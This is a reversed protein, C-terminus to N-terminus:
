QITVPHITMMSVRSDSMRIVRLSHSGTKILIDLLELAHNAETESGFALPREIEEGCCELPDDIQLYQEGEFTIGLHWALSALQTGCHPCEVVGSMNYVALETMGFSAEDM